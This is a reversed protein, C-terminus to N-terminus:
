VHATYGGVDGYVTRTRTTIINNGFIYLTGRRTKEIIFYRQLYVNRAIPNRTLPVSM